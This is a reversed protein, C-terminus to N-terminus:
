NPRTTNYCTLYSPGESFWIIKKYFLNNENLYKYVCSYMIKELMKSFCLLVSIPRYNWTDWDNSGKFIPTVWEIKLKDPFTGCQFFFTLFLVPKYAFNCFM